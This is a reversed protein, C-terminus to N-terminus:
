KKIIVQREAIPNHRPPSPPDHIPSPSRRRPESRVHQEENQFMHEENRPYSPRERLPPQMERPIPTRNFEPDISNMHTHTSRAGLSSHDSGHDSRSSSSPVREVIQVAHPNSPPPM